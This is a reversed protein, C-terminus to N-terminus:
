APSGSAGTVAVTVLTLAELGLFTVATGWVAWFAVAAALLLEFAVAGTLFVVLCAVACTLFVVFEAVLAARFLESGTVRVAALAAAGAFLSALGVAGTTLVIVLVDVRTVLVEVRTVLVEVRTVLATALITSSAGAATAVVTVRVAAGIVFVTAGIVFVTAGIVFVTAGIVFVRLSADVETAFVTPVVAGTRFVTAVVIAGMRPSVVRGTAAAERVDLGFAFEIAGAGVREADESCGARNVFGAAGSAGFVSRGPAAEARVGEVGAVTRASKSGAV